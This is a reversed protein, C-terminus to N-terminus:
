KVHFNEGIQNLSHGRKVYAQFIGYDGTEGTIRLAVVVEGKHPYLSQVYQDAAEEHSEAEFSTAFDFGEASKKGIEYTTM